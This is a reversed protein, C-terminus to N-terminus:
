VAAKVASREANPLSQISTHKAALEAPLPVAKEAARQVCRRYSTTPYRDDAPRAPNMKRNTGVRNGCSDPTKRAATATARRAAEAEKPSFCFADAPRDAM